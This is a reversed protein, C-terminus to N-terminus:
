TQPADDAPSRRIRMHVRDQAHRAEDPGLIEAGHAAQALGLMLDMLRQDAADMGAFGKGDLYDLAPGALAGAADLFRQCEDVGAANRAAARGATGAVAWQAVFPELAAFAVPLSGDTVTGSIGASMDASMDASM